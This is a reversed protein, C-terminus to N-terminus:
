IEKIYYNILQDVPTLKLKDFVEGFLKPDIEFCVVGFKPPTELNKPNFLEVKDSKINLKKSSSLIILEKDNIHHWFVGPNKLMKLSNEIIVNRCLTNVEDPTLGFPAKGEFGQKPCKKAFTLWPVKEKNNNNNDDTYNSRIIKNQIFKTIEAKIGKKQRELFDLFEENENAFVEWKKVLTSLNYKILDYYEKETEPLDFFIKKSFRRLIAPDINEYHNTIGIVRVDNELCGNLKELFFTVLENKWDEDLKERKSTIADVEDIIVMGGVKAALDFIKRANITIGGVYTSSIGSLSLNFFQKEPHEGIFCKVIFSKGTGPPGHLLINNLKPIFNLCKEQTFMTQLQIKQKEMGVLNKFTLKSVILNSTESEVNGAESRKENKVESKDVKKRKKPKGTLEKEIKKPFIPSENSM